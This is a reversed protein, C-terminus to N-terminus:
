YALLMAGGGGMILEVNRPLLGDLAALAERMKQATLSSM